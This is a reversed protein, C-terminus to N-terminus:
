LNVSFNYNHMEMLTNIINRYHVKQHAESWHDLWGTYFESNVLPGKPQIKRFEQVAFTVNDVTGFDITPYVGPIMGKQVYGTYHGDTTFLIVNEGLHKRILDRLFIKYALGQATPAVSTSGYENEVQVMIIPGGNEYLLHRLKPLLVSYFREVANMFVTNNTRYEINEEWQLWAPFGGFDREACIFPGPRLIVLLDLNQALTIFRVLDNIGTFDFQGKKPEMTSWEVYSHHKGNTASDFCCDISKRRCLM